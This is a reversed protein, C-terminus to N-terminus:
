ARYVRGHWQASRGRAHALASHLTMALYACATFPLLLAWAPHLGYWRLMPLYSVLMLALALVGCMRALGDALLLLAPGLFVFGLGLVSLALKAYSYDLETFASRRVMAWFRGFDYARLSKSAHSQGLWLKGGKAKIARALAVDDILENKIAAFGGIAQLASPRVLMCGGAAAATPRRPDAVFAFPYLLRFFYVFAPVLWREAASQVNLDVMLSVLTAERVAAHRVLGALVTPEHVIDADTLWVWGADPMQARAEALGAAQAAVKGSWGPALPPAAVITLRAPAAGEALGRLRAVTDDTSGDDVVIIGFPGAYRQALLSAVAVEITAAENRAPVIAVAAPATPPVGEPLIERVRWYGGRGVLLVLWALLCALGFAVSM